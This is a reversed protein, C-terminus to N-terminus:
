NIWNRWLGPGRICTFFPPPCNVIQCKSTPPSHSVRFEALPFQTPPAPVPCPPM